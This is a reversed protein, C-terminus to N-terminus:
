SLYAAPVGLYSAVPKSGAKPLRAFSLRIVPNYDISCNLPAFETKLQTPFGQLREKLKLSDRDSSRAVSEFLSKADLPNLFVRSPQLYQLIAVQSRMGVMLSQRIFNVGAKCAV